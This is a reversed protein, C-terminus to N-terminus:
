LNCAERLRSVTLSLGQKLLNEFYQDPSMPPNRLRQRHRETAACVVSPKLDLLNLIFEDPHQAEIDYADLSSAPFDKLNFTVIVNAGCRIAAALVHRDKQDPLTLGPILSEYGTVIADRVNADMLQRTRNIAEISLDPRDECVSRIWEEHISESWRARFLDTLALEM